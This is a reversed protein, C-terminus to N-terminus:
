AKKYFILGLVMFLLSCINLKVKFGISLSVIWLDLALPPDLGFAKSKAVTDHLAGEPLVAGLFVGFLNGIIGSLILVVIAVQFRIKKEERILMGPEEAGERLNKSFPGNKLFVKLLYWL